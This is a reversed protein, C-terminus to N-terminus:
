LLSDDDMLYFRLSCIHMNDSSNDKLHLEVTTPLFKFYSDM